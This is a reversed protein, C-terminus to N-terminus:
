VVDEVIARVPKPQKKVRLKPKPFEVKECIIRPLSQAVNEVQFYIGTWVKRDNRLCKVIEESYFAKAQDALNM